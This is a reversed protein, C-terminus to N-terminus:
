RPAQRGPAQNQAHAPARHWPPLFWPRRACTLLAAPAQGGARRGAQGGAPLRSPACSWRAKGKATESTGSQTGDCAIAVGQRRQAAVQRSLAHHQHDRPCVMVPDAGQHQRVRHRQRRLRQVPRGLHLRRALQLWCTRFPPAPDPRLAQLTQEKPHSQKGRVTDSGVAQRANQIRIHAPEVPVGLTAREPPLRAASCAHSSPAQTAGLSASLSSGGVQRSNAVRSCPRLHAATRQRAQQAPQTQGSCLLGTSDMADSSHGSASQICPKHCVPRNTTTSCTSRPGAAPLPLVTRGTGAERLWATVLLCAPMVSASPPGQQQQAAGRWSSPSSPGPGASQRGSQWPPCFSGALVVRCTKGLRSGAVAGRGAGRGGGKWRCSGTPPPHSGAATAAASCRYVATTDSDAPCTSHFTPSGASSRYMISFPATRTLTSANCQMSTCLGAHCSRAPPTSAASV